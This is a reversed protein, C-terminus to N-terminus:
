TQPRAKNLVSPVLGLTVTMAVVMVAQILLVADFASRPQGALKWAEAFLGLRLGWGALVGSFAMGALILAQCISTFVSRGHSPTLSMMETSIAISSAAVPFGFLFHIVGLAAAPPVGLLDRVLFLLIAAGYGFHCFLFIPKTGIRDVAWGGVWYGAVSGIMTLNALLVVTGDGLGLAQKEVLGFLTVCGGTFLQIVFVYACFPAYGPTRAARLLAAILPEHGERDPTVEPIAAYYLGWPLVCAAALFLVVQLM